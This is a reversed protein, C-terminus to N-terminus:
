RAQRKRALAKKIREARKPDPPLLDELLRNPSVELHQSIRALTTVAFPYKGSEISSVTQWHVGVRM